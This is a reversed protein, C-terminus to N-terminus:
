SEFINPMSMEFDEEGETQREQSPATGNKM